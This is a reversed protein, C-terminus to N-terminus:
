VRFGSLPSGGKRIVYTHKGMPTKEFTENEAITIQVTRPAFAYIRDRIRKKEIATLPRDTGLRLHILDVRKQVIQFRKLPTLERLAHSVLAYHMWKGNPLLLLDNVRGYIDDLRAAGRDPIVMPAPTLDEMCYRFLPYDPNDLCTVQIAHTGDMRKPTELLLRHEMISLPSDPIDVAIVGTEIAGYERVVPCRFVKEMAAISQTDLYEASVVVLRLGVPPVRTRCFDALRMAALAYAYIMRVSGRTLLAHCHALSDTDLFYANVHFRNKLRATVQKKLQRIRSSFGPRFHSDDGWLVLQPHYWEVNWLRRYYHSDLRIQRHTSAGRFFRMPEGTSGSTRIWQGPGADQSLFRGPNERIEAKHLPPMCAFFTEMDPFHDPLGLRNKLEIYHPVRSAAKFWIANLQRLQKERIMKRPQNGMYRRNLEMNLRQSGLYTGRAAVRLWFSMSMM